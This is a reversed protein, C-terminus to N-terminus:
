SQTYKYKLYKDQAEISIIVDPNINTKNNM